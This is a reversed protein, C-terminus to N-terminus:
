GTSLRTAGNFGGIAYVYGRHAICALGSRRSTMESIPTWTDREVDYWECQFILQRDNLMSDRKVIMWQRSDYILAIVCVCVGFGICTFWQLWRFRVIRFKIKWSLNEFHFSRVVFTFKGMSCLQMLTPDNLQCRNCFPGSIRKPRIVNWREYVNTAMTAAWLMSKVM